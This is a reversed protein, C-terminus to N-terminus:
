RVGPFLGAFARFLLVAAWFMLALTPLVLGVLAFFGAVLSGGGVLLQVLIPVVSAVAFAAVLLGTSGIVSSPGFKPFRIVLWVALLAAGCAYAFLISHVDVSNGIPAIKESRSSLPLHVSEM